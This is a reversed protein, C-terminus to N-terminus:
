FKRWYRTVILYFHKTKGGLPKVNSLMSEFAFPRSKNIQLSVFSCFIFSQFDGILAETWAM